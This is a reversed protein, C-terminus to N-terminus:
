ENIDITRDAFKLREIGMLVNSGDRAYNLDDVLVRGDLIRVVYDRYPGSFEATDTGVGGDIM